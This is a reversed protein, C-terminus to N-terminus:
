SMRSRQSSTTRSEHPTAVAQDRRSVRHETAGVPSVVSRDGRRPTHERPMTTELSLGARADRRPGPEM